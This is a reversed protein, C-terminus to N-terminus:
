GDIFFIGKTKTTKLWINSGKLSWCHRFDFFMWTILIFFTIVLSLIDQYKSLNENSTGYSIYPSCHPSYANKYWPKFPILYPGRWVSKVTENLMSRTQICQQIINFSKSPYQIINSPLSCFQIVMLSAQDFYEYLLTKSLLTPENEYQIQKVSAQHKTLTM